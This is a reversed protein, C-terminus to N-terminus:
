QAKKKHKRIRLKIYLKPMRNILFDKLRNRVGSYVDHLFVYFKHPVFRSTVRWDLWREYPKGLWKPMAFAIKYRKVFHMFYAEIFLVEHEPFQKQKLPVRCDPSIVDPLFGAQKATEYLVTGPYPYFINPIVRDSKMRANLKITKLAKHIDEYPLGIINYTLQAIGYKHFWASCNIMMEDTMFRKLYKFRMEQDGSELGMDITYCGAEKMRRVTDETLIDFRVNGTFPLHIEKKYLEIFKDFWDPFMNFIADRFNIFQINPYKSLLTKLYLIANEPSRFRAYIKKNPYVNRFQSNGCYTCNYFCGRSMMVIATNVKVSDLNKYDFLDFDPIPIRDLDAFLPRVQNKIFSGDETKFWLSEVDTYDEGASMKDCLELEAYEGDGICVCDVGNVALVEAPVLTCHYSGCIIFVDPYVENTWEIYLKSDPFATTRVSFGIIDFKGADKLKNQFEQKDHLYLLHLLSVSHGGQKLVASISALGESYSGGSSKGKLDRDTYDPYVLLVRAKRGNLNKLKITLGEKSKLLYYKLAPKGKNVNECRVM